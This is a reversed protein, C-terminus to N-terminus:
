AGPDMLPLLILAYTLGGVLVALGSGGVALGIGRRRPSDARLLGAGILLATLTTSVTAAAVLIRYGDIPLRGLLWGIGFATAFVFQVVVPASRTAIRWVDDDQARIRALSTTLM